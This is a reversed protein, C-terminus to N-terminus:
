SPVASFRVIEEKLKLKARKLQTIELSDTGPSREEEEIQQELEHHKRKLQILHSSASM